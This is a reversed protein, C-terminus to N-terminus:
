SVLVTYAIDFIFVFIRSPNLFFSFVAAIEKSILFNYSLTLICFAIFCSFVHSCLSSHHLEDSFQNTLTPPYMECLLYVSKPIGCLHTSLTVRKKTIILPINPSSPTSHIFQEKCIIHCYVSYWSALSHCRFCQLSHGVLWGLFSICHLIFFFPPSHSVSLYLFNSLMCLSPMFIYVPYKLVVGTSAFSRGRYSILFSSSSLNRNLSFLLVEYM